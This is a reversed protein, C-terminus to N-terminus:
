PKAISKFNNALDQKECLLPKAFEMGIPQNTEGTVWEAKTAPVIRHGLHTATVQTLEVGFFLILSSYYTWVIFAVLSGSAGFPTSIGAFGLYLGIFYSGITFLVATALAGCWVDRWWVQVDPLFKFTFAFLITLFAFSLVANAIKLLAALEPVLDLLTAGFAAIAASSIVTAILLSGVVLVIGFSKTRHFFGGWVGIDSKLKVNWITNLASQLESLVGSAGLLLTVAGITSAIAGMEPRSSNNVIAKFVKAGSDGMLSQLQKVLTDSAGTEGFVAGIIATAIVLLPAVSLITYFALAASLRPANHSVWSLSADRVITWIWRYDLVAFRM